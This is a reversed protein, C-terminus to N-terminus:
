ANVEATEVAPGRLHSPYFDPPTIEGATLRHIEEMQGQRPIARTEDSFPKCWRRVQLPTVSLAEAFSAQTYPSAEIWAHLAPRENTEETM